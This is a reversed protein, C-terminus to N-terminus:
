LLFFTTFDAVSPKAPDFYEGPWRLVGPFLYDSKRVKEARSVKNLAISCSALYVNHESDYELNCDQHFINDWSGTIESQIEKPYNLSSEPYGKDELAIQYEVSQDTSLAVYMNRQLWLYMSDSLALVESRDIKYEVVVLESTGTTEFYRELISHGQKSFRSPKHVSMVPLGGYFQSCRQQLQEMIWGDGPLPSRRKDASTLQENTKMLEWEGLTLMSWATIKKHNLLPEM